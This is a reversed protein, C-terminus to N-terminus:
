ETLSNLLEGLIRGDFIGHLTEDKQGLDLAAESIRFCSASDTM